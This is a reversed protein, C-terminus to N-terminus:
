GPLALARRWSRRQGEHVFHRYMLFTTNAHPMGRFELIIQDQIQLTQRPLEDKAPLPMKNPRAARPEAKLFAVQPGSGTALIVGNLTALGRSGSMLTACGGRRPERRQGNPRRM